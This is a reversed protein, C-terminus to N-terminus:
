GRRAPSVPCSSTACPPTTRLRPSGLGVQTTPLSATSPTKTSPQHPPNPPLLRPRGPHVPFRARGRRRLCHPRHQRHQATPGRLRGTLSRYHSQADIVSKHLAGATFPAWWPTTTPRRRPWTRSRLTEAVGLSFDGWAEIKANVLGFKTLQGKTWENARRLGESNALRPGCVDTLYFAAKM